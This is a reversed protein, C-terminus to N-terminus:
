GNRGCITISGIPRLMTSQGSTNDRPMFSGPLGVVKEDFFQQKSRAARNSRCHHLRLAGQEGVNGRVWSLQRRDSGSQVCVLVARSNHTRGAFDVLIDVWRRDSEPSRRRARARLRRLSSILKRPARASRQQRRSGISFTSTESVTPITVRPARPLSTGSRISAFILQDIEEDLNDWNCLNMKVLLRM